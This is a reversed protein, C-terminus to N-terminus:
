QGSAPRLMETDRQVHVIIWQVTPNAMAGMTPGSNPTGAQSSHQRDWQFLQQIKTAHFPNEIAMFM